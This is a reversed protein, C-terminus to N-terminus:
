FERSAGGAERRAGAVERGAGGKLATAREVSPSCGTAAPIGYPAVRNCKVLRAATVGPEM